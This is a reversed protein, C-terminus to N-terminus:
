LTARPIWGSITAFAPPNWWWRTARGTGQRTAAGHRSRIQRFSANYEDLIVMLGSAQVIKKMTPLLHMRPGGPTICHTYPDPAGRTQAMNQRAWASYPLGGEIGAGLNIFQTSIPLDTCVRAVDDCPLPNAVQWMGSLDPRSSPARPAPAAIDPQGTATRPFGATPYKLWQGALPEVAVAAAILLPFTHRVAPV